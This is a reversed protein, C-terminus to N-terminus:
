VSGCADTESTLTNLLARTQLMREPGRLHHLFWCREFFYRPLSLSKDQFYLLIRDLEVMSHTFAVDDESVSGLQDRLCGDWGAADYSSKLEQRCAVAIAFHRNKDMLYARLEEVQTRASDHPSADPIQAIHKTQDFLFGIMDAFIRKNLDEMRGARESEPLEKIHELEQALELSLSRGRTRYFRTFLETRGCALAYARGGAPVNKRVYSLWEDHSTFNSPMKYAMHEKRPARSLGM